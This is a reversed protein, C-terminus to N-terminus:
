VLATVVGDVDLEAVVEGALTWVQVTSIEDVATSLAIGREGWAVVRPQVGDFRKREGSDLDYLTLDQSVVALSRSDPSWAVVGPTSHKGLPLLSNRAPTNFELRPACASLLGLSLLVSAILIFLPRHTQLTQTRNMGAM